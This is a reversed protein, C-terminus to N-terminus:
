KLKIKLPLLIILLISVLFIDLSFPFEPVTSISNNTIQGSLQQNATLNENETNTNSKSEVSNGIIQINKDGQLFQITLTRDNPTADEKQPKIEEGDVLITFSADSGDSTKADLLERPLSLIVSGYNDSRISVTLSYSSSNLSMKTISGGSVIYPVNFILTDSSQVQFVGKIPATTSTYAFTTQNQSVTGYQVLITYVGGSKWSSGSIETAYIYSGDQGLTPYGTQIVNSYPDLIKIDLTNGPIITKVTGFVIITDGFIYSSKDTTITIPQSTTKQAYSSAPIVVLVVLLVLFAHKAM